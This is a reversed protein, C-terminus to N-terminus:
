RLKVLRGMASGSGSELRVLYIGTATERGSDDCGDWAVTIARGNLMGAWATRVLRGTADFILARASTAPPGALRLTTNGIFPNPVARLTTVTALGADGVGSTPCPNPSCAGSLTWTGSCAAQTTVTCIGDLECCSGTPLPCPNPLCSLGNGQYSGGSGTCIAESEVGCTGDPACCAGTFAPTFSGEAAFASGAFGTDVSQVSWFYSTGIQLQSLHAALGSHANDREKRDRCNLTGKRVAGDEGKGVRARLVVKGEVDRIRAEDRNGQFAAPSPDEVQDPLAGAGGGDDQVGPVLIVNVNM